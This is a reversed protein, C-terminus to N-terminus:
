RSLLLIVAVTYALHGLIAIIFNFAKSFNNFGSKKGITIKFISLLDKIKYYFRTHIFILQSIMFSMLFIAALVEYFVPNNLIEAFLARDTKVATLLGYIFLVAFSFVLSVLVLYRYKTRYYRNMCCLIKSNEESDSESLYDENETQSELEQLADGYVIEDVLIKFKGNIDNTKRIDFEFCSAEMINKANQFELFDNTSFLVKM